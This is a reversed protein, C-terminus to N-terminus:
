KKVGFGAPAKMEGYDYMNIYLKLTDPNGEWTVAYEDLMAMGTLTLGSESEIPCCSGRRKYWVTEGEPGTLANLYRQENLPGISQDVGGVKVANNSSYGYTSDTSIETLLFINEKLLEPGGAKRTSTCNALLVFLTFLLIVSKLRM